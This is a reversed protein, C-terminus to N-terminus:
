INLRIILKMKNWIEKKKKKTNNKTSYYFIPPLDIDFNDQFENEQIEQIDNNISIIDKNDNNNQSQSSSKKSANELRKEGTFFEYLGLFNGSKIAQIPIGQGDNYNPLDYFIQIEGDDVYYLFADDEQESQEQYIIDDEFYKIEKIEFSLASLFQESFFQSWKHNKFFFSNSEFMLKNRLNLPLTQIINHELKKDRSKEDKWQFDLFANIKTQLNKNIQKDRMYRNIANIYSQYKIDGTSVESIIYWISNISYAFIICSMLMCILTIIVEMPAVPTVDGYGVSIMTTVSWYLAYEYYIITDLEILPSIKSFWCGAKGYQEQEHLGIRYFICAFFNSILMVIASLRLLQYAAKKFIQYSLHSELDQDDLLQVHLHKANSSPYKNYQNIM